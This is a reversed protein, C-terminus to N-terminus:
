SSEPTPKEQESIFEGVVCKKSAAIVSLRAIALSLIGHPLLLLGFMLILQYFAVSLILYRTL